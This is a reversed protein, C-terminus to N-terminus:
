HKRAVVGQMFGDRTMEYMPLKRGTIDFYESPEFNLKTFNKLKKRAAISSLRIFVM